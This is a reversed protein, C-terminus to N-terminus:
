TLNMDFPGLLWNSFVGVPWVDEANFYIVILSPFVDFMYFTLPNM